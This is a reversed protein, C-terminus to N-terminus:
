AFRRGAPNVRRGHLRHRCGGRRSFPDTGSRIARAARLQKSEDRREIRGSLAVENLGFGRM